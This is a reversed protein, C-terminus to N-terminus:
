PPEADQANKLNRRIQDIDNIEGMHREVWDAPRDFDRALADVAAQFSDHGADPDTMYKRPRRPNYFEVAPAPPPASAATPDVPEALRAALTARVESLDNSDGLNEEIWADPRDFEEALAAIAEPLSDHHRAASSWYKKPRRPDYFPIGPSGQPTATSAAGSTPAPSPHVPPESERTPPSEPEPEVSRGKEIRAVDSKPYILLGGDYECHIEDNQELASGECITRMGDKFYITDAGEAWPLLAMVALGALAHNLRRLPRGGTSAGTQPWRLKRFAAFSSRLVNFPKLM